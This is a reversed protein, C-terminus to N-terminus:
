VVILSVQKTLDSFTQATKGAADTLAKKIEENNLNKAMDEIGKKVNDFAKQIDSPVAPADRKVMCSAQSSM